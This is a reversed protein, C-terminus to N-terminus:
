RNQVPLRGYSALLPLQDSVGSSLFVGANHISANASFSDQDTFNNLAEQQASVTVTPNVLGPNGLAQEVDVVLTYPLGAYASAPLSFYLPQDLTVAVITGASLKVTATVGPNLPTIPTGSGDNRLLAIPVKSYSYISYDNSAPISGDAKPYTNGQSLASIPLQTQIRQINASSLPSANSGTATQLSFLPLGDLVSGASSVAPPAPNGSQAQFVDLGFVFRGSKPEPLALYQGQTTEVAIPQLNSSGGLSVSQNLRYSVSQSTADYAAALGSILLPAPLALATVGPGTVVDGNQLGPDSAAQLTLLGDSIWGSLSLSRAGQVMLNSIVGGSATFSATAPTSGPLSLGVLPVNSYTGDNLGVFLNKKGWELLGSGLQSATFSQLQHWEVQTPADLLSAIPGNPLALLADTASAPVYSMPYASGTPATIYAGISTPPPTSGELGAPEASGTTRATPSFSSGPDASSPNSKGNYVWTVNPLVPIFGGLPLAVGASAFTLAQFSPTGVTWLVNQQSGVIAELGVGYKSLLRLRVNEQVGLGFSSTGYDRMQSAAVGVATGM